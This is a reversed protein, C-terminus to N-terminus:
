CSLHAGGVQLGLLGPEGCFRPIAREQAPVDGPLCPRTLGRLCLPAGAPSLVQTFPRPLSGAPGRAAFCCFVARLRAPPRQSTLQAPPRSPRLQNQLGRHLGSDPVCAPSGGPGAAGPVRGACRNPSARLHGQPIPTGPLLSWCLVFRLGLALSVCKVSDGQHFPAM